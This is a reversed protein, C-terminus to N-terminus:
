RGAAIAGGYTRALWQGAQSLDDYSWWTTSTNWSNIMASAEDKNCLNWMCYSINNQDLFSIWTNAETENIWGNGSAECIGFESVFIPLNSSRATSVKTRMYETHTTAYFHFAYMINDYGTIRDNAVIDVDQSWNPTGVIIIADPDNARIVPIVQLAYNKIDSWQTGNCPENCIEYIVNDYNNYKASMESFFAIAQDKYVLPSGENLVHWDIIVYMNNDTAYQVGNYIVQKLETQNGGSCYGNYEHTYLALRFTNAGLQEKCYKVSDANVYQPFWSLGHTSVGKLKAVSGNEGVLTGNSNVSLKGYPLGNTTVTNSTSQSSQNSNTNNSNNNNNNSSTTAQQQGTTVEQTTTNQQNNTSAQSTNEKSENNNSNTTTEESDEEVNSTTEDDKKNDKKTTEKKVESETTSDAEVLEELMSNNEKVISNNEKIMEEKESNNSSLVVSLVIIAIIAIILCSGLGIIIGKGVKNEWIEKLKERFM